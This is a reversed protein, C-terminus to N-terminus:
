PELDDLEEDIIRAFKEFSQSGTLFRGNIFFTPTGRVGYRGVLKLDSRVQREAKSSDLCDKFGQLEIGAAAARRELKERPLKDNDSIVADHFPWFKGQANACVAAEAAKEANPHFSLPDHRFVFRVKDGYIVRIRQLVTEVKACFPCQLDIFEVIVVPADEPGISPADSTDVKIRKPELYVHVHHLTRLQRLRDYRHEHQRDAILEKRVRAVAEIAEGRYLSRNHLYFSQVEEDTPPKVESDIEANLADASLKRSIAEEQVLRDAIMTELVTRQFDVDDAAPVFDVNRPAGGPKAADQARAVELRHERVVAAQEALQKRTIPTGDVTAVADSERPKAGAMVPLFFILFLPFMGHKRSRQSGAVHSRLDNREAKTVVDQLAIRKAM